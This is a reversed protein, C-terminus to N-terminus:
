PVKLCHNMLRQQPAGDEHWKIGLVRTTGGDSQGGGGGEQLHPSGEWIMAQKKSSWLLGAPCGWTKSRVKALSQM